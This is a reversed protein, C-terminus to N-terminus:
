WEWMRAIVQEGVFVEVTLLWRKCCLIECICLMNNVLLGDVAVILTKLMDRMCMYMTWWCVGTCREGVFVQVAVILTELM